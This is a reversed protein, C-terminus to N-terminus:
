RPTAGALAPTQEFRNATLTEAAALGSLWATEIRGGALWDGAVALGKNANLMHDQAADPTALAYRWRHADAHVPGTFAVGCMACVRAFDNLLKDLAQQMSLEVHGRSWEHDAQVVWCDMGNSSRGPKSSNRALWGIPGSGAAKAADFPLDIPQDFALMLSWCPLMKAHNSADSAESFHDGLFPGVQPAPVTVLLQDYRGYSQGERDRLSWGQEDHDISTILSGFHTDLPELMARGIANMGPTGVWMKKQRTPEYGAPTLEGIRPRWRAVTGETAWAAVQRRFRPDHATFYQAGHDFSYSEHRRTACRGGPGRGKDFVTVSAGRQSLQQGASAGSIGGGIIAVNWDAKSTM